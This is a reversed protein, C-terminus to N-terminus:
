EHISPQHNSEAHRGMELCVLGLTTAAAGASMCFGNEEAAVWWKQYLDVALKRVKDTYLVNGASEGMVLLARTVADNSFVIIEAQTSIMKHTGM